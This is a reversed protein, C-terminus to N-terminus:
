ADNRAQQHAWVSLGCPAGDESRSAPLVRHGVIRVCGLSSHGALRGPCLCQLCVSTSEPLKGTLKLADPAGESDIGNSWSEQSPGQDLGGPTTHQPGNVAMPSKGWVRVGLSISTFDALGSHCANQFTGSWCLETHDPDRSVLFCLVGYLTARLLRPSSRAPAGGLMQSPFLANDGSFKLFGLGAHLAAGVVSAVDMEEDNCVDQPRQLHPWRLPM